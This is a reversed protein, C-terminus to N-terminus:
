IKVSKKDKKNENLDMTLDHGLLINGFESQIKMAINGSGAKGSYHHKFVPGRKKDNTNEEKIDFGSKNSFEGFNTNIDFNASLDRNVDLYLRTFKNKITLDKTSNEIGLKIGSCHEFTANMSGDIKNIIARSFKVVLDGSKLSEILATGFEVNVRKANSLKGATLKGFKCTLELAGSFDPVITTGFQNIANLPNTAPMYVQYNIEMKEDKSDKNEDKDKKEDTSKTAKKM